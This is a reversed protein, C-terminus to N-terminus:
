DLEDIRRSLLQLAEKLDRRSTSNSDFLGKIIDAAGLSTGAGLITKGIGSLDPLSLPSPERRTLNFLEGAGVAGAASAVGSLVGDSLVKGISGSTSASDLVDGLVSGIGRSKLHVPFGDVEITAGTSTPAPALAPPTPTPVIPGISVPLGDVIIGRRTSNGGLVDELVVPLAGFGIGTGITKLIDGIGGGAAAAASARTQQQGERVFHHGEDALATGLASFYSAYLVPASLAPSAASAALALLALTKHSHM